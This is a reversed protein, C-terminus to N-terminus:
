EARQLMSTTGHYLDESKRHGCSRAFVVAGPCLIIVVPVRNNRCSTGIPDIGEPQVEECQNRRADPRHSHNHDKRNTQNRRANVM